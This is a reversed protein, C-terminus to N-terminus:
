PTASPGAPNPLRYLIVGYCLAAIVACLAMVLSSVRAGSGLFAVGNVAAGLLVVAAAVAPVVITRARAMVTRVAMSISGAILALGVVAHLVLAAVATGYGSRGAPVHVYLNVVMGLAFQALLLVLLGRATSRLWQPSNRKATQAGPVKRTMGTM